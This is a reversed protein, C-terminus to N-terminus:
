QASSRTNSRKLFEDLVALGDPCFPEVASRRLVADISLFEGEVIEEPQLRFPGDHVLRYVMGHVTTRADSYQFPFLRETGNADVGLEEQVERRAGEDYSEGAAQVGGVTVDWYSPFVDKGPTRLHVFLAGASNFVLVYTCRHPLRRQRMEARTVVGVTRGSEDVVDVLEKAAASGM